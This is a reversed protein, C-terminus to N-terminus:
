HTGRTGVESGICLLQSKRITYVDFVRDNRSTASKGRLNVGRWTLRSVCSSRHCYCGLDNVVMKAHNRRESTVPYTQSAIRVRTAVAFNPEAVVKWKLVTNTLRINLATHPTPAISSKTSRTSSAEYGDSCSTHRYQATCTHAMLVGPMGMHARRPHTRQHLHPHPHPQSHQEQTEQPVATQVTRGIHTHTRAMM